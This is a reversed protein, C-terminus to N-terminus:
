IRRRYDYVGARSRQDKFLRSYSNGFGGAELRGTQPNIFSDARAKAISEITWGANKMQILKGAFDRAAAPSQVSLDLLNFMVRNYGQTGPQLGHVILPGRMRQQVNTLTGMWKRDVMQPSMNSSYRGGSVTGRNWNGDGSDSHGYYAKTYGGSPTRTGEAVGVMVFLEHKDNTIATPVYRVPTSAAVQPMPGTNLGQQGSRWSQQLAALGEPTGFTLEGANAPAAGVVMNLFGDVYSMAQPGFGGNNFIKNFNFPDSQPTTLWQGAKELLELAENTSNQGGGRRRARSGGDRRFQKVEEPTEPVVEPVRESTPTPYEAAKREAEQLMLKAREKAEKQTYNVYQGSAADYKKFSEISRVLLQEKQQGTLSDFSKDPNAQQWAALTPPSIASQPISASEIRGGNSAAAQALSKMATNAWGVYQDKPDSIFQSSDPQANKKAGITENIAEQIAKTPEWTKPDAAERKDYFRQRVESFFRAQQAKYAPSPVTKGDPGVVTMQKDTLGTLPLYESWGVDFENSQKSRASEFERSAAAYPNTFGGENEGQRALNFMQNTAAPSYTGIPEAIMEKVLDTASEGNLQREFMEYDRQRMEPTVRTTLSEMQNIFTPIATPDNLLQASQLMLDRAQEVQGSQTLELAKLYTRGITEGDAAKELGPTLTTLVDKITKGSDGIPISWLDTKGDAGLLPVNTLEQTRQVFELKEQPDSIRNLAEGIGGAIVRVQGQPGFNNAAETAIGQFVTGLGETLPRDGALDTSGAASLDKWNQTLASAAGQIIGVQALDTEKALRAKYANGRVVGDLRALEQANQAVQYSPLKDLGAVERAAAQAEATATARLEQQQPTNGAATIIPRSAVEAQLAPGYATLANVTRAQIVYDKARPSLANMAAIAQQDGTSTTAIAPYADIAQGAERQAAADFQEIAFKKVTEGTFFEIFSNVAQNQIEVNKAAQAPSRNDRFPANATVTSGSPLSIRPSRSSQSGSSVNVRGIGPRSYTM